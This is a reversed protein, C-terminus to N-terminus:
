LEWVPIPTKNCSISCVYLYYLHSKSEELICM